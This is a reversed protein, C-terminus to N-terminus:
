NQKQQQEQNILSPGSVWLYSAWVLGLIDGVLTLPIWWPQKLHTRTIVRQRVRHVIRMLKNDIRKSRLIYYYAGVAHHPKMTKLFHGYTRIGGTEEKLHYVAADACYVVNQDANLVRDSFEREYDHATGVFNQDFGGLKLAVRKNILVNCGIFYQANCNRLGNFSFSETSNNSVGQEDDWPQVVRGAVIGFHTKSILSQYELLLNPFPRVDDDVFLVYDQNAANLGTNMAIVVSPKDLKILEITNTSHWTSLQEAIHAVHQETQDVVIIQIDNSLERLYKITDLLVQGRNYSPIVISINFSNTM